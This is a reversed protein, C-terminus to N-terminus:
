KMSDFYARAVEELEQKDVDVKTNLATITKTDIKADIANLIEAIDPNADLVKKSIVPAINYPPWVQKDDALLTFTNDVLQGETTYAVAVDAENNKLLLEAIKRKGAECAIIFSMSM